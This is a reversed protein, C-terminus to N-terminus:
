SNMAATPVISSNAQATQNSLRGRLILHRWAIDIMWAPVLQPGSGKATSRETEVLIGHRGISIIQNPRSRGLTNIVQGPQVASQIQELLDDGFMEM